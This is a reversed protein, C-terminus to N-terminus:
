PYVCLNDIALEQGGIFFDFIPGTVALQGPVNYAGTATVGPIGVFNGGNYLFGNYMLNTNGGYWGYDLTIKSVPMPSDVMLSANNLWMENGWSGAYGGNGIYTSGGMFWPPWEFGEIHFDIGNLTFTDGVVYSSWLPLGQFNVCIPAQASAQEVQAPSAALFVMLGLLIALLLWFKRASFLVRQVHLM